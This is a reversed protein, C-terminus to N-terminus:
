KKKNQLGSGKMEAPTRKTKYFPNACSNNVSSGHVMKESPTKPKCNKIIPFPNSKCRTTLHGMFMSPYSSVADPMKHEFYVPINMDIHYEWGDGEDVFDLFFTNLLSDVYDSNKVFAVYSEIVKKKSANVSRAKRILIEPITELTMGKYIQLPIINNSNNNSNNKRVNKPKFDLWVNSIYEEAWSSMASVVVSVPITRKCTDQITEYLQSGSYSADDVYVFMYDSLREGQAKMMLDFEKSNNFVYSPPRFNQLQHRNHLLLLCIWFNSKSAETYVMVYKQDKNANLFQQFASLMNAKFETFSIYTACEAFIKAITVVDQNEACMQEYMASWKQLVNSDMNYEDKGKELTGQSDKLEAMEICEESTYIPM